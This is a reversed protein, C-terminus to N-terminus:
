REDVQFTVRRYSGGFHRFLNAGPSIATVRGRFVADSGALARAATSPPICYCAACPRPLAFVSLLGIVLLRPLYRRM